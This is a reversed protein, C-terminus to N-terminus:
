NYSRIAQTEFPLFRPCKSYGKREWERNLWAAAKAVTDFLFDSKLRNCIHCAYNINGDVTQGGAARPRFHDPQPELTEIEGDHLVPSGFTRECYICQNDQRDIKADRVHVPISVTRNVPSKRFTRAQAPRPESESEVRPTAAREPRSYAAYAKGEAYAV